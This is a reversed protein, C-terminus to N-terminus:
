NPNERKQTNLIQRRKRENSLRDCAQQINMFTIEAKRKENPDRYRDPHWKRALTRCQIEIQKQSANQKLNLIKFAQKDSESDLEAWIQTWIGKFGYRLYFAYLQKM